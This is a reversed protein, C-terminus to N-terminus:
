CYNFMLVIIVLALVAIIACGIDQKKKLEHDIPTKCHPCFKGDKPALNKCNPCAFLPVVISSQIQYDLESLEKQCSKCYKHNLFNETNCNSCVIRNVNDNQKTINNQIIKTESNNTTKGQGPKFKNGCSLCIIDIKKSGHMGALLGVGGTLVGGVIAKGASFGHKNATLKDSGCKPCYLESM